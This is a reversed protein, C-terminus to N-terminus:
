ASPSAPETVKVLSRLEGVTKRERLEGRLASLMNQSQFYEEMENATREYRAAIRGIEARMENETVFVKRETAIKELLFSARLDHTVKTAAAGIMQQLQLAIDQEPIGQQRLQMEYRRLMRETESTVLSPPVDFPVATLLAGVIAEDLARDKNAEASRELKKRTEARMEAVDDYDMEKAWEDTVEPLTVHQVADIRISIAAEVGRFKEERFDAPLAQRFEVTDGKKKGLLGDNLGNILMGGLVDTGLQWEVDTADVITEEGATIKVALTTIGHARIAEDGAEAVTAREMRLRDIEDDVQKETVTLDPRTVSIEELKPLDFVPRVDVVIDFALEAGRAIKVGEFDLRPSGVVQLKHEDVAEQVTVQVLREKVEALVRDGLRAEVLKRPAKGQRFGQFQVAGMVNKLAAEFESDVRSAPVRISLKRSCPGTQEIQSQAAPTEVSM